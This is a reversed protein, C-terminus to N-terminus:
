QYYALALKCLMYLCDNAILSLIIEMILKFLFNKIIFRM